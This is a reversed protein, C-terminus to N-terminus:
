ARKRKGFEPLKQKVKALDAWPDKRLKALRKGINLLTFKNPTLKPGLEEWTVPVSLPAGDRSRTSYACVSTAGRGNRLYDLFIKGRRISKTMKTVYKDPSDAAVALVMAHAFDKAEDWPTGDTPLMVHLGKGGSTKVFSKLKLDALRERLERAASNVAPWPLNDGPDLDFVIRDCYEVREITSGWVHIELVGAQVLTLLGDLDDVYILEEGHSDKHRKIRDSILGAAAHKQFFCEGGVGEPCRVLALPRGVLHPAIHEWVSTYYDALQQKTIEVDTWYIRDPHTFKVSGTEAPTATTKSPKSPPATVAKGARKKPNATPMPKEQVVEKAPKDERLGKFAAHRIHGQATFGTFEVEAVLKPEVWVGKGDRGRGREEDPLKGFAPTGRRLPQLKKWLDRAVQTTYGTGSRGAYTLKGDKNYGLILAGIAGKLHTSDKYGAIVFEQNAHVKAKIWDDSRGSRYPADHRKSIVGEIKLDRAHQMMESGPIAFHDSYRIIDSLNGTLQKLAAKRETLPESRLDTGDLHMLDFVYYVFSDKKNKLADQLASFDSVGNKEVVVEGDILATDVPLKELAAAVPKFKDTWDLAKRTLLQVRGHDIRAQLRYGDFKAEHVYAPDDPPREHLTALECPVFDPLSDGKSTRKPKERLVDASAVQARSKTRKSKSRPATKKPVAKKPPAAKANKAPKGAARINEVNDSISRNSQWVAGGAKAIGEITRRSVVSRDKEELIDPDNPGRAAEDTAKILLWPEQREGPRKRMRVLHWRGSLKQGELAFDLKGKAYGRRPDGDPIWRGRDWIMVTGGGYQGKPITGEFTNYEIPHDEVHVALRKEGPVLSPGRTVAWSKMVGDLELRLDYHLRSAAHKQIVFADGGRKIKGGRPEATVNFSRKARYKELAV